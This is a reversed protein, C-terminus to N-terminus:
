FRWWVLQTTSLSDRAEDMDISLQKFDDLDFNFDEGLQTTLFDEMLVKDNTLLMTRFDPNTQAIRMVEQLKAWYASLVVTEDIESM